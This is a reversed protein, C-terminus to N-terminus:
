KKCAKKVVAEIFGKFLPHVKIPSSQFEPHFQAGVMFPHDKIETIEVLDMARHIGSFIIGTKEFAEKYAKNVEYRHRHRELVADNKYAQWAQTDKVVTCLYSGLRMNAGKTTIDKQENMMCVVPDQTQPDFETSNATALSLLSRAAEIIMVQMGLCLGLYPIRHERAWQCALIKGEVGRSDFGGPM